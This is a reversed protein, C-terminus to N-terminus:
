VIEIGCVLAKDLVSTFAIKVVGSADAKASFSRVVAWRLRRVDAFRAHLLKAAAEEVPTDPSLGYVPGSGTM